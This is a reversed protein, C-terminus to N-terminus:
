AKNTDSGRGDEIGFIKRDTILTRNEELFLIFAECHNILIPIDREPSFMYIETYTDAPYGNKNFEVINYEFTRIDSGNKMLAYPYVLHQFHNKFKGFTYSRTTKIDHISTPMLEDILGYVLVEGLATPLIAEVRQQTLAGKFYDAFERCLTMPFYFYRNNYIAILEVVIDAKKPKFDSCEIKGGEYVKILKVTESSRGEILCDVIENFATGKDAAESDFPVRNIKNILEQFQLKHFEEPTHPPNESWGWYKQWIVDSNIYEFFADLLTAYFRFKPQQNM